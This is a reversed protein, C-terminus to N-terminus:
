FIFFFFSLTVNWEFEFKFILLVNSAPSLIDLQSCLETVSTGGKLLEPSNFPQGWGEPPKMGM